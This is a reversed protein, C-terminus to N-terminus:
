GPDGANVEPVEHAPVHGRVDQEVGDARPAAELPTDGRHEEGHEVEEDRAQVGQEGLTTRGAPEVDEGEHADPVSELEGPNPRDAEGVEDTASTTFTVLPACSLGWHLATLDGGSYPGSGGLPSFISATGEQCTAGDM